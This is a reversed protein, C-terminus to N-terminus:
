KKRRFLNQAWSFWGVRGGARAGKRSLNVRAARGGVSTSRVGKETINLKVGPAIKLRKRFNFKIPM